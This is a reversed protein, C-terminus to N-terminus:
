STRGFYESAKQLKLAPLFRRITWFDINDTVLRCRAKVACRAILADRVARNVWSKDIRQRAQRRQSMMRNLM